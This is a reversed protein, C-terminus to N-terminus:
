RLQVFYSKRSFFGRLFPSIFGFAKATWAKNPQISSM